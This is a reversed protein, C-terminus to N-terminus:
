QTHGVAYTGAIAIVPFDALEGRVPAPLKEAAALVAHVMAKNAATMGYGVGQLTEIRIGHVALARRLKHVVVDVSKWVPQDCEPRLGYLLSYIAEKAVATRNLLMGLVEAQGPQIGFALRLRASRPADIGLVIELQEVRNRLQELEKASM